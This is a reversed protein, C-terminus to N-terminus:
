VVHPFYVGFINYSLKGSTEASFGDRLKFNLGNEVMTSAIRDM